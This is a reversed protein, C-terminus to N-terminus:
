ISEFLSFMPIVISLVIAGVVVALFVIMVPEILAQLKDSAEEVEQEYFDSVKLLMEDIAGTAEGVSIMQTILKPFVWNEEMPKVISEGKELSVKSERLVKKMVRNDIVRETIDVAQLIPVSSNLLSSLTQTLRALLAKQIFNGFIPVKLLLEDMAYSSTESKKLLRLSYMAAFIFGIILWWYRQLYTSMNLVFQTFAPLDQDFSLFLDAFIPVIFTFMFFTVVLAMLGVALPYTLATQIKKRLRYQKEYYTAMRELIEDLRGSVEGALIMSVLLEPFLKPYKEMAKSLSIGERIEQSIEELAKKLLNNDTQEELTKLADVLVIGSEILTAFQRLFIVFDKPKISNGIHIEQYLFPNLEKVDFVILNLNSLEKIVSQKSLSEIKGKVIKGEPSKAKYSFSSM